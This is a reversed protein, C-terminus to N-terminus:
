QQSLDAHHDIMLVIYKKKDLGDLDNIDLRYIDKELNSHDIRLTGSSRFKTFVIGMILGFIFAVIIILDM